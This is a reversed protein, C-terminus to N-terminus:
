APGALSGGSGSCPPLALVRQNVLKGEVVAAQCEAAVLVLSLIGPSPHTQTHPPTHVRNLAWVAPTNTAYGPQSLEGNSLCTLPEGGLSNVVCTILSFSCPHM